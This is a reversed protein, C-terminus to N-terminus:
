SDSTASTNQSFEEIGHAIQQLTDFIKGGSSVVQGAYKKIEQANEAGSARSTAMISGFGRELSRANECSADIQRTGKESDLILRDSANQIEDIINKIEKISDIITDSLRRIETAVIHFNKGAEGSSSAELEANFAIIKTQDAVNSIIGVIDWIGNMKTNLKKIGETTLMNMNRIEQLDRVNSQLAESGSRVAETISNMAERIEKEHDQNALNMVYHHCNEKRNLGNFIAVAMQECSNYGCAGCNYIDSKSHKGMSEYVQQLESENPEKIFKEVAVSRDQYVREYIAPKWYANVTKELKRLAFKSPNGGTRWKEQRARARSEVLDELEDLPMNNNISGGGRNCGKECNLCDVLQYYPKCGSSLSRDLGALYEFVAPQGEIKRTKSSIGPVFREATRMLGGPTSYLVAREALPNDYDVQPYSTLDINHERFYLDLNKMTVNYDGRGNEDFERRKAFCPSIVAIRCDRYEPYFHRICEVTHAMPSDAKALYQILQPRYIEIFSVLAPCPQSIMIMPNEKKIQEVYSKTTLEAGFAVDFVARVGVSKLWGNLNLDKGSFNVAVAPAVIAVISIGSKLDRFFEPMDDIGTRAGHVCADICTGCGICLDHNISVYSGSGNNCMKVPCVSICRHCNCCKEPDVNIVPRLHEASSYDNM